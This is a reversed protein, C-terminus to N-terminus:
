LGEEMAHRWKTAEEYRWKQEKIKAETVVKKLAVISQTKCRCPAASLNEEETTTDDQETTKETTKETQVDKPVEEQELEEKERYPRSNSAQQVDGETLM